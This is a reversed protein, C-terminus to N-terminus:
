LTLHIFFNPDLAKQGAFRDIGINDGSTNITNYGETKLEIEEEYGKKEILWHM